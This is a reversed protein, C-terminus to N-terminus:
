KNCQEIVVRGDPYQENVMSSVDLVIVLNVVSLLQRLRRLGSGLNAALCM